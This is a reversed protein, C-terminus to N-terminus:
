MRIDKGIVRRNADLLYIVPTAPISYLESLMEPEAARAVIWRRPLEPATSEWLATDSDPYVALVAIQGADIRRNLEANNGLMEITEACHTCDPAYFILLLERGQATSHLTAANGDRSVYTFDAARTGPRNKSVEELKAQLLVREADNLRYHKLMQWVFLIYLEESRLPSNPDYLYHETYQSILEQQSSGRMLAAVAKAQTDPEVVYLLGLFDAFQQEVAASDVPARLLEADDWFHVAVSDVPLPGTSEGGSKQGNSCAVALLWLLIGIRYYRPRM